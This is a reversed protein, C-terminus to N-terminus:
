QKLRFQTNAQTLNGAAEQDDIVLSKNDGLVDQLNQPTTLPQLHQVPAMITPLDTNCSPLKCMM